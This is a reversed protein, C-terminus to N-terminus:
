ELHRRERLEGRKGVASVDDAQQARESRPYEAETADRRIRLDCPGVRGSRPGRPRRPHQVRTVQAPQAPDCRAAAPVDKERDAQGMVFWHGRRALDGGGLSRQSPAQRCDLDAVLGIGVRLV